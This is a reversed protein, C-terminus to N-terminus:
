SEVIRGAYRNTAAVEAHELTLDLEIPGVADPTVFRVAGVRVCSDPPVSGSWSWRHEGGSWRLVASCVLDDLPRRLDSVVHVELTVASGVALRDPLREAVVIVPRCADIVHRLAAKARHAHDIVSTSVTPGPDNWRDICFGGTPRYKLRRLSEIHHRLLEAQYQQTADRWSDFSVHDARPTHLELRALDLDHHARLHDWDLDPWRGPSMFEASTPVSAAGFAGVFRVMRPMTAAFADLDRFQGYEWGFWLHGDTGELTPPQPPVGSHAIAPRTEDAAELTRRTWRDLVLSNWTPIHQRALRGVLSPPRRDPDDPEDHACWLVISPHHGLADVMERAQRLVQRRATRAVSHVLPLEQWVLMGAEDAAEYLERRAVHGAVRILDLGADRASAVIRAVDAPDTAALSASTPAVVAGKTFLREGNISFVWEQLAVERLGTRVRRRDSVVGEVLVEVVVETLPQSGLSWPWWLQPDAVDVDWAVENSGAALSRSQEAVTAGDVVTRITVPRPGVVDIRAHLRLHARADNADRCLVRLRDLRAPGTSEIRVPRWLGGPNSDPDIGSTRQLAGTLTRRLGPGSPCTVEVALVHDHGLRALSTIDFSHPFFYGEPDGLYAGDLWVDAQYLIGELTVFRREGDGPPELHFRRRYMVPGNSAVFEHHDRWHGPVDLQTWTSDDADLGIGDRRVDDDAVRVSWPGDLQM